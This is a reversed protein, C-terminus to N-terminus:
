STSTQLLRNSSDGSTCIWINVALCQVSWWTGLLPTLSLVSPVSPTQLGMPLVVIDVLWFGWLEWTSFWLGFVVCPPIWPELCMHLLPHGQQVDIPPSARPGPFTRHGLTPSHWPLSVPTPPHTPSCGWLLLPLSSPISPEPFFVLFPNLMQFTFKFFWICFFSFLLLM